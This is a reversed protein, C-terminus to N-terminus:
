SEDGSINQSPLVEGLTKAKQYRMRSQYLANNKLNVIGTHAKRMPVEDDEINWSYENDITGAKLNKSFSFQEEITSYDELSRKVKYLRM